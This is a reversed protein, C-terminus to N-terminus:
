LDISTGVGGLALRTDSDLACQGILVLSPDASPGDLEFIDEIRCELVSALRLAVATNPLYRGSEMDYIAQRQVGIREALQTQTFGKTLRQPKLHSVIPHAAVKKM